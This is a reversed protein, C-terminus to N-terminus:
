LPLCLRNALLGSLGAGQSPFHRAPRSSGRLDRSAAESPSHTSFPRSPFRLLSVSKRDVPKLSLRLPQFAWSLLLRRGSSFRRPACLLVAEKPPDLRQLAPRLGKLNASLAGSRLSDPSLRSEVGPSSCPKSPRLGPANPASLPKGPHISSVGDLPYGFGSPPVKRLCPLPRRSTQPSGPAFFPRDVRVHQLASSSVRPAEAGASTSSLRSIPATLSPPFRQPPTSDCSLHKQIPLRNL